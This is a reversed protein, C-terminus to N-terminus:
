KGIAFAENGKLKVLFIAFFAILSVIAMVRFSSLYSLLTSQKMVQYNLLTYCATQANEHTLGNSQLMGTIGTIANASSSQCESIHSVLTSRCAAEANTIHTGILALGVAGGLQRAMNSLGTGQGLNAGTLGAVAMTIAPLMFLGVGLGRFLLPTFVGFWSSDPSQWTMWVAFIFTSMFGMAILNRPNVGRAMLKQCIVMGFSTVIAGPVMSLGTMTATWGLDIQVLLPFAYIGIYLIAGMGFNLIVGMLLNKSRMLRINVAPNKIKIERFVFCVIGIVALVSLINITSDQFWDKSNGEELVYQLSGIGIALFLIGLWDITRSRNREQRDPIFFWAGLASLIGLPINIYFIWNWSYNDTIIGGLTPGIAPGCAVSMGYIVTALAVKEPPFSEILITQSLSLLAGGGIGQIFRWLVLEGLTSSNGCMFSAVTFLLISFAFYRKQGFIETFLGSLPIIIVNSIAFSTIIWAIDTTSAGINGAIPRLSVNVITSDILAMLSAVICTLVIVNRTIGKPYQITNVVREM